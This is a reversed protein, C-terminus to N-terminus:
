AWSIVRAPYGYFVLPRQTGRAPGVNLTQRARSVLRRSMTRMIYIINYLTDLVSKGLAASVGARRADDGYFQAM